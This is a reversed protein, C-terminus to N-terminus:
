IVCHLADPEVRISLRRGVGVREGDLEIPMPRELDLQLAAVRRVDIGPHPLHTGLPLRRRALIRQGFPPNGDLIVLRGDNPHSRPAVDWDGLYQANMAAVVRGRWWSRRVVLHAVFWHQRGDILVSGLDVPLTMAEPSHLRAEDGGGGLTACLDGALLGLTPVAANRRRAATVIARAEADSRVVAGDAPLPSARGWAEGKRITM